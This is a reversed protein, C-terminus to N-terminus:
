KVEPITKSDLGVNYEYGNLKLVIFKILLLFKHFSSSLKLLEM